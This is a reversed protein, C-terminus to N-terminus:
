NKKKQQQKPPPGKGSSINVAMAMLSVLIAKFDPYPFYKPTSLSPTITPLDSAM